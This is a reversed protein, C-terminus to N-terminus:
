RVGGFARLLPNSTHGQVISGDSPRRTIRLWAGLARTSVLASSFLSYVCLSPNQHTAMAIRSVGLAVGYASGPFNM